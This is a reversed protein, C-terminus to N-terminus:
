YIYFFSLIFTKLYFSPIIYVIPVEINKIHKKFGFIYKDNPKSKIFILDHERKVKVISINMNELYYM